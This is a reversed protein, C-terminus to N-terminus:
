HRLIIGDRLSVSAHLMAGNSSWNDKILHHILGAHVTCM